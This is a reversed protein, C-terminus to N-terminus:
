CPLPFYFSNFPFTSTSHMVLIGEGNLYSYLTATLSAHTAVPISHILGLISPSYFCPAELVLLLSPCRAGSLMSMREVLLLSLLLFRPSTGPKRLSSYGKSQSVKSQSAEQVHPHVFEDVTM